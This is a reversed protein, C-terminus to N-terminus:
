TSGPTADDKGIRARLEVWSAPPTVPGDRYAKLWESYAYTSRNKPGATFFIALKHPANPDSGGPTARHMTRLNFAVVDGARSMISQRNGTMRELPDARLGPLDLRRIPELFRTAKSLARAMLSPTPAAEMAARKRAAAAAYDELVHSGPVVDLGGGKGPGGNDQLYVAVQIVSFTPDWFFDFGRNEPSSTDKHWRAYFGRHLVFEDLCVFDDGLLDALARGLPLSLLIPALEPAAVLLNTVFQEDASQQAFLGDCIDRLRAIDTASFLQTFRIFGFRTFHEHSGDAVDPMSLSATM